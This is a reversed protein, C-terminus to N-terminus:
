VKFSFYNKIIILSRENQFYIVKILIQPKLQLYGTEVHDACKARAKGTTKSESGVQRGIENNKLDMVREELPGTTNNDEHLDAVKKAQDRGVSITMLANWYCHRLADGIGNHLTKGPYSNQAEAAAVDANTKAKACDFPDVLFLCKVGEVLTSGIM